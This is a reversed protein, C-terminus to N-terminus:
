TRLASSETGGLEEASVEGMEEEIIGGDDRLGRVGEWIDNGGPERGIRVGKM